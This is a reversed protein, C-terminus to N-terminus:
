IKVSWTKNQDEIIVQNENIETTINSLIQKLGSDLSSLSFDIKDGLDILIAKEDPTLTQDGLSSVLEGGISVVNANLTNEVLAKIENITSNINSISADIPMVINNIIELKNESTLTSELVSISKSDVVNFESVALQRGDDENYSSYAFYLGSMNELDLNIEYVGKFNVRDLEVFSKDSETWNSDKFQLDYWDLTFNDSRRRIKMTPLPTADEIPQNTSDLLLWSFNEIAM